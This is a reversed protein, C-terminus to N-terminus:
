QLEDSKDGSDISVEAAFPNRNDPEIIGTDHALQAFALYWGWRAQINQSRADALLGQASQLDIMSGVGEKYRALAVNESEQASALLDDATKVQQSAIKLNHYSTFVQFVIRQELSKFQDAESEAQFRAQDTKFSNKFGNFLPFSMSLGASYADSYNRDDDNRYEDPYYTRGWSGTIKFSPFQQARIERVHAQASALRAKAAVLDPRHAISIDILAEISETMADVPFNHPEDYIDYQTNAPIGMSLALAGRTTQIEGQVLLLSLEARSLVTQASLVDSITALGVQHRQRAAELNIQAEQVNLTEAELLSKMAMYRFYATEVALIMDQILSHYQWGTAMM